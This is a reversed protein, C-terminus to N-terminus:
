ILGNLKAFPDWDPNLHRDYEAWNAVKSAMEKGHLREIVALSMDIGASVGSSTFFKGDEVWRAQKQWIVNPGQSQVWNFAAKNSTARKDNLCGARALLASGTCVSLVQDSKEAAEQLWNILFANEVQQRTGPGGPLLLIDFDQMGSAAVDALIMDVVSKPGQKSQIPEPTEAILKISFHKELMGFMELPGFLDLLEFDPFVLAAISKM